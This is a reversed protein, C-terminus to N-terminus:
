NPPSLQQQLQEWALTDLKVKVELLQSEDRFVLVAKGEGTVCRLHSPKLEISEYAVSPLAVRLVVNPQAKSYIYLQQRAEDLEIQRATINHADREEPKRWYITIGKLEPATLTFRDDFRQLEWDLEDPNGSDPILRQQWVIPQGDLNGWWRRITELNEANDPHTSGYQWIRKSEM